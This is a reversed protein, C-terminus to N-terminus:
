EAVVKERKSAREGELTEESEDGVSMERERKVRRDTSAGTDATGSEEEGDGLASSVVGNRVGRNGNGEAASSAVTASAPTPALSASKGWQGGRRGIQELIQLIQAQAGEKNQQHTTKSSEQQLHSSSSPRHPGSSQQQARPAQPTLVTPPPISEKKQQEQAKRNLNGLMGQLATTIAKEQPDETQTQSNDQSTTSSPGAVGLVRNIASTVIREGHVKDPMSSILATKFKSVALLADPSITSALPPNHPSFSVLPQSAPTPTRQLNPSPPPGDHPQTNSPQVVLPQMTSANPPPATSNTQSQNTPTQSTPQLQSQPASQYPSQYSASADAQPIALPLPLGHSLRPAHPYSPLGPPPPMGPPINYQHLQSPTPPLQGNSPTMAVYQQPHGYTQPAPPYYNPPALPPPSARRKKEKEISVDPVIGWMWGKGDREVKTFAPHQSLNHRVSSQWGVTTVRLKFFPYRREIARYIQPLSMAGTKSNTLAEHILVVYSQQPKALQEPTLTAEDFIPSPSRPPRLPRKEKPSKPPLALQDPPMSDTQETTERVSQQEATQGEARKRKTYKRKEPKAQPSPSREKGDSRPRGSKGKGAGPNTSSNKLAEAKAAEKAQRALLAQERKSMIGNKPPRGPGKRKPPLVGLELVPEPKPPKPPKKPAKKGRQAKRKAPRAIKKPPAKRAKANNVNKDNTDKEEEDENDDDDSDDEEDEDDINDRDQSSGEDDGVGAESSDEIRASEGRGDEFDFSMMGGSTLDSVYGEAGTDRLAVDPLVFRIKVGSIQIYSGSTLHQIAGPAYWQDDIFAGNKGIIEIEFYNKDFNFAIRIHRRSIGRHGAAVGGEMYPPHIPILPCEDPSPLLESTNVPHVHNSGDRLSEMALAQYDTRPRSSLFSSKRSLNHSSSSTSKSKKSKSRRRTEQEHMNVGVIGGSESVVSGAMKRGEPTQSADASSTSRKKPRPPFIQDSELDRHRVLREAKVDRGLEVAYTNMFFQGDDFELKAFAQIRPSESEVVSQASELPATESTSDAPLMRQLPSNNHADAEHHVDGQTTQWDQTFDGPAEMDAQGAALIAAFSNQHEVVTSGNLEMSDEQVPSHPEPAHAPMDQQELAGLENEAPTEIQSEARSRHPPEQQLVLSDEADANTSLSAPIIKDETAPVDQSRRRDSLRDVEM